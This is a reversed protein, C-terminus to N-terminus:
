HYHFYFTLEQEEGLVKKMDTSWAEYPSRDTIAGVVAAVGAPSASTEVKAIRMVRGDSKLIFTVGVYTGSASPQGAQLRSEWQAQVIETVRRLYGGYASWKPDAGRLGPNRAAPDLTGPISQTSVLQPRPRSAAVSPEPASATPKPPPQSEPKVGACGGWSCAVLTLAFVHQFTLAM